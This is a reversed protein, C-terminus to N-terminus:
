YTFLAPQAQRYVRLWALTAPVQSRVAFWLAADREDGPADFARRASRWGDWDIEPMAALLAPPASGLTDAMACLQRRVEHRTLRSRRFAAEDLTETLILVAEGASEIHQLLPATTIMTGAGM